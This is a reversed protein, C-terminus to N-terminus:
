WVRLGVTTLLTGWATATIWLPMRRAHPRLVGIRRAPEARRVALATRGIDWSVWSWAAVLPALVVWSVDARTAEEALIGLVTAGGLLVLLTATVLSGVLGLARASTMIRSAEDEPLDEATNVLVTGEQMAGYAAFFLLISGPLTPSVVRAVLLMPGFFIVAWLTVIQLLGRGKLWLPRMSYQAGLVLGFAALGFIEPRAAEHAFYAALALVLVTTAALQLRVNWVGLGYVAESLHTKYVADLDRDALCNAIDGFHFMLFFMLALPIFAAGFIPQGPPVLLLLPLLLIPIEAVMFEPRRIRIADRLDDRWTREASHVNVRRLHRTTTRSFARRGHLLAHNDAIVVDGTQWVHDLVADKVYLAERLETIAEASKLPDVGVARVSVPNLADVPEAFRLIVEGTTPHESVVNARFRGGYHVLRRTEYEFTLARWRDRTPEDAASWVRTSDVFTTQGGADVEPAAACQFFLYRPVKGAFAGDWHLPVPGNTYLYNKTGEKLELENVSGFEWAQLPGLRRASLPLARKEMPAVGRLVLVRHEAVWAHIREAPITDFATGDPLRVELGFPSLPTLKADLDRDLNRDLDRDLHRDLNRDLNLGLASM